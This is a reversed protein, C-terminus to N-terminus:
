GVATTYNVLARIGTSGGEPICRPEGSPRRLNGDTSPRIGLLPRQLFVKTIVCTCYTHAHIYVRSGECRENATTEERVGLFLCM